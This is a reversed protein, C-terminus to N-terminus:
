NSIQVLSLAFSRRGKPTLRIRPPAGKPWPFNGTQTLWERIETHILERCTGNWMSAKDINVDFPADGEVFLRIKGWERRLFQDRDAAAIKIGCASAGNTWATGIFDMGTKMIDRQTAASRQGM